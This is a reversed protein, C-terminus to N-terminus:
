AAARYEEKRTLMRWLVVLLNRAVGVIAKKGDGTNACLRRFRDKASEDHRIWRWAAEVLVARLHSNGTKLIAGDRAARGRRAEGLQRTWRTGRHRADVPLEQDAAEGAEAEQEGSRAHAIGPSRGGGRSDARVRDEAYGQVRGKRGNKGGLVFVKKAKAM